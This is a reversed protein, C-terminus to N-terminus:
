RTLLNLCTQKACDCIGHALTWNRAFPVYFNQVLTLLHFTIGPM